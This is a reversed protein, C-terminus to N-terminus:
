RRAIANKILDNMSSSAPTGRAGQDADGTPRTASAALYPKAKVLEDLAKTIAKKDVKGEADVDFQALDLHLIADEPDALKGAASARVEAQVIRGNFATQAEARADRKAAEIAKEQDSMSSEKFRSLEKEMDSVRKEAARRSSREAELARKGADGLDADGGAGGNNGGAGGQDDTGGTGTSEEPM